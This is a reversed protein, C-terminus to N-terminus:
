SPPPFDEPGLIRINRQRAQQLLHAHIGSQSPFAVILEPECADLFDQENRRFPAAKQHRNWDPECFVDSVDNLRAWKAATADAGSNNCHILVIEGHQERVQELVHVIRDADVPNDPRNSLPGTFGVRVGQPLQLKEAERAKIFDKAELSAGTMSNGSPRYSNYPRWAEGTIEPYFKALCDRYTEFVKVRRDLGHARDVALELERSRIETGDQARQLDRITATLEDVRKTLRRTQSHFANIVNWLLAGRDDGIQTGEPCLATILDVLQPLLELSEEVWIERPDFEDKGPPQLGYLEASQCIFDAYSDWSCSSPEPVDTFEPNYALSRTIVHDKARHSLPSINQFTM